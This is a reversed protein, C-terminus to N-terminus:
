GGHLREIDANTYVHGAQPKHAKWFAAADGVTFGYGFERLSRADTILAAVGTLSAPVPRPEEATLEVVVIMPYGYYIPFLNAQNQLAPNAIYPQNAVPEGVEPLSPLPPLPTDLSLTPTAIPHLLRVSDTTILYQPGASFTTDQAAAVAAFALLLFSLAHLRM